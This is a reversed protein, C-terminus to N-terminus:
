RIGRTLLLCGVTSGAGNAVAAVEPQRPIQREGADGRLQLVSEHVFGLGHLRGASLQGASTNMPLDGHLDFRSGDGMFDGAEGTGCFGLAELWLVTIISFGDYLQATDVDRVSLETRNWMQAAPGRGPFTALDEWQDWSPRGRASTGLANVHVPVHRADPATDVHSIVFATSGDCPLDCDFLCLPSSIMRAELYDSLTLPARLIAKPNRAAMRRGNLAVQALKERTLGFHHLHYQALPALWCTASVSGYPMLYKVPGSIRQSARGMVQRGGTGQATGETVTRYVLVHRALGTAIAMCANVVAQLQASGEGSGQYWDVELGMADIVDPAGPGGFGGVATGRGGGPYTSVGDIDAIRLGADDIAALAAQVTLTMESLGTRRGVESQGIGSIYSLREAIARM